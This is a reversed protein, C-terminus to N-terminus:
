QTRAIRAFVSFCFGRDPIPKIEIRHGLLGIARRVAFLGLGLGDEATSNLRQFAEVFDPLSGRATGIDTHYADIRVDDGHKRCGVLIRGGPRAYKIGSSLFNGFISRLLVPNSIVRHSSPCIALRVGKRAAADDHDNSLGALLPALAVETVAMTRTYEYLRLASVLTDLQDTLEGIAREGLAVRSRECGTGTQCRLWDNTHQIIQLPRHLDHAAIRLLAGLFESAQRGSM